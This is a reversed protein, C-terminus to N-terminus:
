KDEPQWVTTSVLQWREVKWHGGSLKRVRVRLEQAESVPCTYMFARGNQTVQSPLEGSRIRSFLVEAERDANYYDLVAQFSAHYLKETTRATSLVLVSLVMMSLVAFVALLTSAGTAPLFFSNKERM